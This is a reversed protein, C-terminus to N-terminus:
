SSTLKNGLLKINYSETVRNLISFVCGSVPLQYMALCPYCLLITLIASSKRFRQVIFSVRVGGGRESRCHPIRINLLEEMLVHELHYIHCVILLRM